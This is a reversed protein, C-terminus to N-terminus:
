LNFFRIIDKLDEMEKESIKWNELYRKQFSSKESVLEVFREVTKEM